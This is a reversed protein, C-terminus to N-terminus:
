EVRCPLKGSLHDLLGKDRAGPSLIVERPAFRALENVAHDVWGEPAFFTLFVEGTSIDGFCQGTGPVRMSSFMSSSPLFM